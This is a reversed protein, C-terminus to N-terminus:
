CECANFIVETHGVYQGDRVIVGIYRDSSTLRRRVIPWASSARPLESGQTFEIKSGCPVDGFLTCRVDIAYRRRGVRTIPGYVYETGYTLIPDRTSSSLAGTKLDFVHTVLEYTTLSFTSLTLGAKLPGFCWDFHSASHSVHRTDKALDSLTYRTLLAGDRYLEVVDLDDAVPSDNYDAVVVLSRGSSDVLATRSGFLGALKFLIQGSRKDSLSWVETSWAGTTPDRQSPTTVKFEYRGNSSMFSRVLRGEDAIALTAVILLLLVISRKRM